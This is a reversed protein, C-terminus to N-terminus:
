NSMFNLTNRQVHKHKRSLSPPLIKTLIIPVFNIFAWSGRAYRHDGAYWILSCASNCEFAKPIYTAIGRKHVIKAIEIAPESLGGDNALVLTKIDLNSLAEKFQEVREASITWYLFLAEPLASSHTFRGYNSIIHPEANPHTECDSVCIEDDIIPKTHANGIM